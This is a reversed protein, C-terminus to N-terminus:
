DDMDSDNLVSLENKRSFPSFVLGSLSNLFGGRASFRQKILLKLAFNNDMTFLLGEGMVGNYLVM